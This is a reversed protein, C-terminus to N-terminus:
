KKVKKQMSQWQMLMFKRPFFRAGFRHLKTYLGYVSFKKNKRADKLAREVVEKVEYMPRYTKPGHIKNNNDAVKFFDTEVWGPCVATVSIGRRKLEDHLANSYHVVFAKTSAYVNFNILPFFSSASGLNIIHSGLSMYKVTVTSMYVLAKDNLDIMNMLTELSLENYNGFRGYGAANVLYRVNPTVIDLMERYKQLDEPKTLDLDLIRTKASVKRAVSELNAKRRAILWIEDFKETKDLQMVFERGIGSSAGTIIAINLNNM